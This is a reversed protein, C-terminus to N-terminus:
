RSRCRNAATSTASSATTSARTCISSASRAAVSPAMDCEWSEQTDAAVFRVRKADGRPEIVTYAYKDITANLVLGGHLDCYPSVDTGGGALGLRM